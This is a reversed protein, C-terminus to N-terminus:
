ERGDPMTLWGKECKRQANQRNNTSAPNVSAPQALVSDSFIDSSGQLLGCLQSCPRGLPMDSRELYASREPESGAFQRKM